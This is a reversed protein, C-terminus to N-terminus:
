LVEPYLGGAWSAIKGCGVDTPKKKANIAFGDNVTSVNGAGRM